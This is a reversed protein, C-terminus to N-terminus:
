HLKRHFGGMQYVVRIPGHEARLHTHLAGRQHRRRNERDVRRPDGESGLSLQRILQSHAELDIAHRAAQSQLFREQMADITQVHVSAAQSMIELLLEPSLVVAITTVQTASM